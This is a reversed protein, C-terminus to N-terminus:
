LIQPHMQRLPVANFEHKIPQPNLERQRQTAQGRMYISWKHSFNDKTPKNNM